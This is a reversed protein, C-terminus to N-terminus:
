TTWVPLVFVRMQILCFPLSACSGLCGAPSQGRHFRGLQCAGEVDLGSVIHTALLCKGSYYLGSEGGSCILKNYVKFRGKFNHGSEDLDDGNGLEKKLQEHGIVFM